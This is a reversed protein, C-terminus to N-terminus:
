AHNMEQEQHYFYFSGRGRLISLSFFTITYTM